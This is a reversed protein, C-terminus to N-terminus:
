PSLAECLAVYDDGWSQWEGAEFLIDNTDFDITLRGVDRFIQGHGPLVVMIQVGTEIFPSAFAVGTWHRTIHSGPISEVCITDDDANCITRPTISQYSEFQGRGPTEPHVVWFGQFTITMNTWFGDCELFEDITFDTPGGFVDVWYFKEPAKGNSHEPPGASASMSGLAFVFLGIFVTLIKSSKM